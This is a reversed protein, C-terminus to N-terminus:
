TFSDPFKFTYSQKVTQTKKCCSNNKKCMVLQQM